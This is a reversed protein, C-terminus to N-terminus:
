DPIIVDPLNVQLGHGGDGCSETREFRFAFKDGDFRFGLAHFLGDALLESALASWSM